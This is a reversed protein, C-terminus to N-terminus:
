SIEIKKTPLVVEAKKHLDIQLIGLDYKAEISDTDIEDSLHFSRSFSQKSFESRIVRGDADTESTSDELTVAITLQDKEVKIDFDEKSFGPAIMEIRYKDDHEIINTAAQYRSRQHNITTDFLENVIQSLPNSSHSRNIVHRM